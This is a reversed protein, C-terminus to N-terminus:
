IMLFDICRIISYYGQINNNILKYSDLIVLIIHNYIKKCIKQFMIYILPM